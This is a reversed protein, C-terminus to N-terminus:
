LVEIPTFLLGTLNYKKYVEYFRETCFNSTGYGEAFFMDFGKLSKANLIVPYEGGSEVWDLGETAYIKIGCKDCYSKVILRSKQHYVAGYELDLKYYEPPNQVVNKLPVGDTRLERKDSESLNSASILEAKRFKLGVLGEQEAIEKFKASVIKFSVYYAIFDAYNEKILAMPSESRPNISRKIKRGCKPCVGISSETPGLSFASTYRKRRGEDNSVKYIM